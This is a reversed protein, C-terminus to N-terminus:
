PQDPWHRNGKSLNDFATLIQLNFENHLGCVFPSRLPVIHDVHYWEGTLMGLADATVYFSKIKERNAWTPTARRKKAFRDMARARFIGMNAKRHTRSWRKEKEPNALRYARRRATVAPLNKAVYDKQASLVKERDRLYRTAKSERVKEPNAAVYAKVTARIHDARTEYRKRNEVSQCARCRSKLGSKAARHKNFDSLPKVAYCVSCRKM